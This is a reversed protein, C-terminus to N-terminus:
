LAKNPEFSWYTLQFLKSILINTRYARQPLEEKKKARKGSKIDNKEEDTLNSKYNKKITSIYVEEITSNKAKKKYVIENKVALNRHKKSDQLRM